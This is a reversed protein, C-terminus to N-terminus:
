DTMDEVINEKKKILLFIIQTLNLIGYSCNSEYGYFLQKPQSSCFFM